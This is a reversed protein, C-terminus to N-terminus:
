TGVVTTLATNAVLREIWTDSRGSGLDANSHRAEYLPHSMWTWGKRM